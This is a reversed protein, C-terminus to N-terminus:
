EGSAPERRVVHGDAVARERRVEGLQQELAVVRRELREVEARSLYTANEHGSDWGERWGRRHAEAIEKDHETAHTGCAM